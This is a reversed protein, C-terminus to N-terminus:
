FLTRRINPALVEMKIKTTGCNTARIYFVHVLAIFLRFTQASSTQRKLRDNFPNIREYLFSQSRAALTHLINYTHAQLVKTFSQGIIEV